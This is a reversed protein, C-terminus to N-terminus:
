APDSIPAGIRTPDASGRWGPMQSFSGRSTGAPSDFGRLPPLCDRL